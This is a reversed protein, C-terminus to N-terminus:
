VVMDEKSYRTVSKPNRLYPGAVCMSHMFEDFRKVIGVPDKEKSNGFITCCIANDNRDVQLTGTVTQSYYSVLEIKSIKGDKMRAELRFEPDPIVDGNLTSYIGLTISMNGTDKDMYSEMCMDWWMEPNDTKIIGGNEGLFDILKELNEKTEKKLVKAM